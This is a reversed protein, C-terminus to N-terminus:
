LRCPQLCTPVYLGEVDKLAERLHKQGGCVVLTFHGPYFGDIPLAALKPFNERYAALSSGHCNLLGIIGDFFVIDGPFLDKGDESELVFAVSGVSHSPCVVVTVRTDGLDFSTYEELIGDVRCHAFRYDKPYVGDRKARDLGLAIEDGNEVLVAEAASAYM